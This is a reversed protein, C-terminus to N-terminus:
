KSCRVETIQCLQLTASSFTCLSVDQSRWEAGNTYDGGCERVAQYNFAATDLTGCICSEIATQGIELEPWTIRSEPLSPLYSPGQEMSCGDTLLALMTLTISAKTYQHSPM